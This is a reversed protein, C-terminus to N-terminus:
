PERTTRQLRRLEKVNEDIRILIERQQRAEAETADLRREVRVEFTEQKREAAEMRTPLTIWAGFLGVVAAIVGLVVALRTLNIKVDDSM